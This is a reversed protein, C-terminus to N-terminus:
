SWQAFATIVDGNVDTLHDVPAADKLIKKEVGSPIESELYWHDDSCFWTGDSERQLQWGLFASGDKKFRNIRLNTTIGDIHTTAKRMNYNNNVTEQKWGDESVGDVNYNYNVTYIISNEDVIPQPDQSGRKYESSWIGEYKNVDSANTNFYLTLDGDNGQNKLFVCSEVEYNSQSLVLFYFGLTTPYLQLTRNETIQELADATLMGNMAFTVITSESGATDGNYQNFLPVYMLDEEASYFFGQNTWSELNDLTYLEGKNNVFQANRNDISFLHICNVDVPQKETGGMTGVPIKCWFFDNANKILFYNFEDTQDVLRISSASLYASEGSAKTQKLNFFGALRLTAHEEDLQLQTLSPSAYKSSGPHYTAATLMYSMQDSDKYIAMDNIHRVCDLATEETSDLSNYYKMLTQKGSVPDYQFVNAYQNDKHKAVYLYNESSEMGQMSSCEMTTGCAREDPTSLLFSASKQPYTVYNELINAKSESVPKAPAAETPAQAPAATTEVSQPTTESVTTNGCACLSTMSSLLLIAAATKSTFLKHRM